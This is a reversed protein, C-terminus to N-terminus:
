NNIITDFFDYGKPRYEQLAEYLAVPRNCGRMEFPILTGAKLNPYYCSDNNLIGWRVNNGRDQDYDKKTNEDVLVFCGEGNGTIFSDLTNPLNVKISETYQNM